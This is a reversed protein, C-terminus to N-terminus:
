PALRLSSPATSALPRQRKATSGGTLAKYALDATETGLDTYNVGCTAFAGNRVFSDAGTYHAIGAEEFMPAIALEASMIVNDTPTFVADVGDSILTSAATIVEDNTNATAEVYEIGKADLYAKAQEIPKASNAESQSYLLGIKSADPNAMFIMDMIQETNLADSTGTVYDLGTLDASDPDSIAAFVVPTKTDQAAVTMTQAALTAIPIIVDVDDAIAQSGIQQLTTADNQGSYVEGYDITVGNEDALRDLEATIANAIEDLSAHDLQKVIAVKYVTSSASAASSATSASSSSAAAASSSGCAALSATMAVAAIRNIMSKNSM